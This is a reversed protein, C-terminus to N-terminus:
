RKSTIKCTITAPVRRDGAMLTVPYAVGPRAKLFLPSQSVVTTAMQARNETLVVDVCKGLATRAETVIPGSGEGFYAQRPFARTHGVKAKLLIHDGERTPTLEFAWGVLKTEFERPNTPTIPFGFAKGAHKELSKIEVTGDPRNVIKAGVPYQVPDFAKAVVVERQLKGTVKRGPKTRLVLSKGRMEAHDDVASNQPQARRFLTKKKPSKEEDGIAIRIEIAADTGARLPIPSLLVVLSLILLPKM